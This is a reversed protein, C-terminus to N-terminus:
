SREKFSVQSIYLTGHEDQIEGNPYPSGLARFFNYMEKTTMSSLADKSLVSDGPTRKRRMESQEVAPWSKWEINPYDDLFRNYLAISTSTMQQLIADMNGSLDLETEHSWQRLSLEPY